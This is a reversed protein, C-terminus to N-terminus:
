HSILGSFWTLARSVRRFFSGWSSYVRGLVRGVAVVSAPVGVGVVLGLFEDGGVLGPCGHVLEALPEADFAPGDAGDEVAVVDGHAAAAEVGFLDVVGDV